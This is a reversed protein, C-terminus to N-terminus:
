RRGARYTEGGVQLITGGLEVFPPALTASRLHPALAKPFPNSALLCLVVALVVVGEVLGLLAGAVRNFGGILPLNALKGLLLGVLAFLLIGVLFLLVGAAIIGNRAELHFLRGLSLGLSPALYWALAAGATVGALACLERVLGRWVGKVFFLTLTGLIAIDVGNM